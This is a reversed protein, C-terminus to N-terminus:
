AHHAVEADALSGVSRIVTEAHALADAVLVLVDTAWKNSEDVPFPRGDITVGPDRFPDPLLLRAFQEIVGKCRGITNAPTDEVLSNAPRALHAGGHKRLQRIARNREAVTPPQDGSSKRAKTRAAAASKARNKPVSSPAM